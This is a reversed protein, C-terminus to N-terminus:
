RLLGKRFNNDTKFFQIMWWAFMILYACAVTGVIRIALSYHRVFMEDASIGSLWGLGFVILFGVALSCVLRVALQLRTM